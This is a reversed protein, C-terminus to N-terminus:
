LAFPELPLGNKGFLNVKNSYDTWAYRAHIPRSVGDAKLLLRDGRIEAGAPM